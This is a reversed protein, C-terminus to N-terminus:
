SFDPLFNQFQTDLHTWIEKTRSGIEDDTAHEWRYCVSTTMIRMWYLLLVRLLSIINYVLIRVCYLHLWRYGELGKM